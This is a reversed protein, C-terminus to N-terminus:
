IPWSKKHALASCPINADTVDDTSCCRGSHVIPLSATGTGKTGSALRTQDWLQMTLGIVAGPEREHLLGAATSSDVGGSMAIVIPKHGNASMRIPNRAVWLLSKKIPLRFRV